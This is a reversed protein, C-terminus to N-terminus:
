FTVFDFIFEIFNFFNSSLFHCFHYLVHFLYILICNKAIGFSFIKTSLIKLPLIVIILVTLSSFLRGFVTKYNLPSTPIFSSGINKFRYVSKMLTSLYGKKFFIELSFSM